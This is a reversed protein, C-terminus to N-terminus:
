ASHHKHCAPRGRNPDFHGLRWCGRVHCNHHWAYILPLIVWTDSGIGSWFWYGGGKRAEGPHVFQIFWHLM